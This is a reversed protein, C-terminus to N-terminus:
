RMYGSFDRAVSSLRVHDIRTGTAFQQLPAFDGEVSAHDTAGFVIPNVNGTFGAPRLPGTGCRPMLGPFTADDANDQEVGNVFLAPGANGFNIGVHSWGDLEASPLPESCVWVNESGVLGQWRMALQREATLILAMHNPASGFADHGFIGMPVIGALAPLFLWFDLAGTAVAFSADFDLTFAGAVGGEFARGCPAGDIDALTGTGFLAGMHGGVVSETTNMDFLFLTNPDDVPCPIFSPGADPGGDTGVDPGTDPGGDPAADGPGADDPGADDPGADGPGADPGGVGMDNDGADLTTADVSSDAVQEIAVMGCATVLSWVAIIIARMRKM